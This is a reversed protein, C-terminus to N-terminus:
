IKADPKRRVATNRSANVVFGVHHSLAVLDGEADHVFVELDMRGNIIRKMEVRIQLWKVGEPPLSKKVDLNLLLTPYWFPGQSQDRFSEIIQPFMDAVFGVSTNTFNTGDSWCIWEDALSLHAQGNRPFHFNIRQTAKRFKAFPMEAQRKWNPDADQELKALDISPPPPTLRYQTDFCFGEEADINSNTAYAIVEQRGDQEMSVHVISTQRGLKVDDVKFTAPGTQTRRLFEIHLAITHPQNQKALSTSFHTKVVELVCGTVYGGNPVSGICWEDHLVCSYTNRSLQQVATAEEWGPM